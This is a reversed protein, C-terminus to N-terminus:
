KGRCTELRKEALYDELPRSPEKRRKEIIAMDLLDEVFEKDKLLREIFIRKEKKTLGKFAMLFVEAKAERPSM